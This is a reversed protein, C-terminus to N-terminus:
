VALGSPDNGDSSSDSDSNITAVSDRGSGSTDKCDSEGKSSDCFFEPTPSSSHQIKFQSFCTFDGDSTPHLHERSRFWM